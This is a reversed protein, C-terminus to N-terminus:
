NHWVDDKGRQQQSKIVDASFSIYDDGDGGKINDSGKGGGIMDAGSGGDIEDNGGFGGLLDSGALGNIKDKGAGGFIANTTVTADDSPVEEYGVIQMQGDVETYIPKQFILPTLDKLAVIMTM